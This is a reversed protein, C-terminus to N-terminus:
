RVKRMRRVYKKICSVVVVKVVVIEWNEEVAVNRNKTVTVISRRHRWLVQNLLPRAMQKAAWYEM